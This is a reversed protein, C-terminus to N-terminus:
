HDLEIRQFDEFASSEFQKTTNKSIIECKSANLRLGLQAGEEKIFIDQAVTSSKGALTIDNMSGLRLEAVFRKLLTHISCCFELSALPDRQKPGDLSRIIRNMFQLILEGSYTAHVFFYMEPIFKAITEM